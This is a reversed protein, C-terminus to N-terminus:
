SNLRANKVLLIRAVVPNVTTSICWRKYCFFHNEDIKTLQTYSKGCGKCHSKPLINRIQRKVLKRNAYPNIPTQGICAVWFWAQIYMNTFFYAVTENHVCTVHDIDERNICIIMVIYTCRVRLMVLLSSSSLARTLLATLALVSWGECCEQSL